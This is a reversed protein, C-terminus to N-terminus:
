LKIVPTDADFLNMQAPGLELLRLAELASVSYRCFHGTKDEGTIIMEWDLSADKVTQTFEM